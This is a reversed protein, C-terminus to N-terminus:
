GKMIISVGAPIEVRNIEAFEKEIDYSHMTNTARTAVLLYRDNLVNLIDRPHEGDVVFSTEVLLTSEEVHFVTIRNEPERTSAYLRKGDGSLRLAAGGHNQRVNEPLLSYSSVVEKKSVNIVHIENSLEGIVYLYTGDLSFVGHRCGSGVPLSIEGQEQLSRTFLKISDLHLCPVYLLNGNAIVQHSGAKEMIVNQGMYSLTKKSPDFILHSITGLHYHCTYIDNGLVLLHCSTSNEYTEKVVLTGQFDYVAVGSQEQDDFLAFVYEDTVALYKSNKISAFVSVNGLIGSEQDLTFQYIGQSNHESYTGVLGISM